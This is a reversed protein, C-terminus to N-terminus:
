ALVERLDGEAEGDRRVQQHAAQDPRDQDPQDAAQERCHAGCALRNDNRQPGCSIFYKGSTQAASHRRLGRVIRVISDITTAKRSYPRSCPTSAANVEPMSMAPASRRIVVPLYESVSIRGMACTLCAPLTSPTFCTACWVQNPPM